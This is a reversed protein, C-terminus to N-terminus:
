ASTVYFLDIEFHMRFEWDWLDGLFGWRLGVNLEVEVVQEM